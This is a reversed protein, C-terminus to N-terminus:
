DLLIVSKQRTQAMLWPSGLGRVLIEVQRKILRMPNKM